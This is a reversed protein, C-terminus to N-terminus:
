RENWVEWLRKYADKVYSAENLVAQIDAGTLGKNAGNDAVSAVATLLESVEYPLKHLIDLLVYV